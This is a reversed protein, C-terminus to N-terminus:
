ATGDPQKWHEVGAGLGLPPGTGMIYRSVCPDSDASRLSRHATGTRMTERRGGQAWEEVAEGKGRGGGEEEEGGGGGGRGGRGM